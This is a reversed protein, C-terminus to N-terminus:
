NKIQEFKNIYLEDSNFIEVIVLINAMGRTMWHGRFTGPVKRNDTRDNVRGVSSGPCSHHVCSVWSVNQYFCWTQGTLCHLMIFCM